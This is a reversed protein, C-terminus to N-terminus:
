FQRQLYGIFIIRNVVVKSIVAADFISVIERNLQCGISCAHYIPNMLAQDCLLLLSTLPLLLHLSFFPESYAGWEYQMSRHWWIERRFRRRRFILHGECLSLTGEMHDTIRLRKITSTNRRTVRPIVTHRGRTIMSQARASDNNRPPCRSRRAIQAVVRSPSGSTRM